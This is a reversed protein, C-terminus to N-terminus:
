LVLNDAPGNGSLCYIMEDGFLVCVKATVFYCWSSCCFYKLRVKGVISVVFGPFPGLGCKRIFICFIGLSKIDYKNRGIEQVDDYTRSTDLCGLVLFFVLIFYVIKKRQGKKRLNIEDTGKAKPYAWNEQWYDTLKSVSRISWVIPFANMGEMEIRQYSLLRHLVFYNIPDPIKRQVVIKEPSQAIECHIAM